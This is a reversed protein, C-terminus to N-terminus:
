LKVELSYVLLLPSLEDVAELAPSWEVARDCNRGGIHLDFDVRLDLAPGGAQACRRHQHARHHPQWVGGLLLRYPLPPPLRVTLGAKGLLRM